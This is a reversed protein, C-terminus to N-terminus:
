LFSTHSVVALLLIVVQLFTASGISSMLVVMWVEVVVIGVRVVVAVRWHYRGLM